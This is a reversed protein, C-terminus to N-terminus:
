QNDNNRTVVRGRLNDANQKALERYRDCLFRVLGIAIDMQDAMRDFLDERELRLLHVPGDGAVVTASRPEPDLVALEGFVQGPGMQDVEVDNVFIRVTGTVIVYMCTGWEGAEIILSRSPVPIEEMVSALDPLAHDPVEAFIRSRRLRLAKEMTLMPGEGQADPGDGAGPVGASPSAENGSSLGIGTEREHRWCARTWEHCRDLSAESLEALAVDSSMVAGAKTRRIRALRDGVELDELVPLISGFVSRPLVLGLAEIARARQDGSGRLIPEVCRVVTGSREFPHLLLLIRERALGLEAAFTRRAMASVSSDDLAVEAESLWEVGAVEVRVQEIIRGRLESPLVFGRARWARLAALRVAANPEFIMRELLVRSEPDNLRRSRNLILVKQEPLCAHSQCRQVLAEMGTPGALVLADVAVRATRPNDIARLVASWLTPDDLQGAARLAERRVVVEQDDILARLQNAFRHSRGGGIIRCARLRDRVEPSRCLHTVYSGQSALRRQGGHRVLATVAADRVSGEGSTCASLLVPLAVKFDMAAAALLAQAQVSVEVDDRSIELVRSVPLGTGLRQARALAENRVLPSKNSAARMLVEGLRAPAISEVLTLSLEVMQPDSDDVTSVIADLDAPDVRSHLASPVFPSALSALVQRRYRVRVALALGAWVTGVVVTGALLSPASFGTLERLGLQVLGALGLSVPAVVTEILTQLWVRSRLSLPQYLMLFAPKYFADWTAELSVRTVATLLFMATMSGVLFAPLIAVSYSVGALGVLFVPAALLGAGVGLHTLVPGSLMSRCLFSAISCVAAVVGIVGGVTDLDPYADRASQLFAASAFAYAMIALVAFVGLLLVYPDRLRMRGREPIRFRREEATPGDGAFRDPNGRVATVTIGMVGALLAAAFLLLHVTGVIPAVAAMAFGGVATAAVESAGIIGFRRKAEEMDLVRGALVWFTLPVLSAVLEGLLAAAVAPWRGPVLVLLAWVLVTATTVLGATTVLLRSVRVRGLMSAFGVGVLGVIVASAVFLDPLSGAGFTTVFIATAANTVLAVAIGLLAVGVVLLRVRYVESKM